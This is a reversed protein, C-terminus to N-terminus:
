CTMGASSTIKHKTSDIYDSEFHYSASSKIGRKTRGVERRTTCMGCANQPVVPRVQSSPPLTEKPPAM